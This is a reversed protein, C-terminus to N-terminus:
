RYIIRLRPIRNEIGYPLIQYGSVTLVELKRLNLYEEPIRNDDCCGSIDLEILQDLKAISVPPSGQINNRGLHLLKLNKLDGFTEPLNLLDNDSLYLYELNQLNGISSPLEKLRNNRLDLETLSQLTGIEDPLSEIENFRLNLKNLLKLEGTAAPVSRLENSQLSLKRLKKLNGVADPVERIKNRFLNLETLNVMKEIQSPFTDLGCVSLNLSTVTEPTSDLKSLKRNGSCSMIGIAMAASLLGICLTSRTNMISTLRDSCLYAIRVTM